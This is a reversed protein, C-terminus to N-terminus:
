CVCFLVDAVMNNRVFEYERWKGTNFFFMRGEYLGLCFPGDSDMSGRKGGGKGTTKAYVM